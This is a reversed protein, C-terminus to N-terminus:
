LGEDKMYFFLSKKKENGCILDPVEGCKVVGLLTFESFVKM